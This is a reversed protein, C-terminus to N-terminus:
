EETGLIANRAVKAFRFELVPRARIEIRQGTLPNRGVGLMPRYKVVKGLGPLVIQGEERVAQYAVTTLARLFAEATKADTRTAVALATKLETITM